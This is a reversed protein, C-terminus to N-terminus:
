KPELVVLDAVLGGTPRTLQVAENPMGNERTNKEFTVIERGTAWFRFLLTQLNQGSFVGKFEAAETPGIQANKV